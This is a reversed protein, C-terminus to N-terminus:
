KDLQEQVAGELEALQARLPEVSQETLQQERRLELQLQHNDQLPCKNTNLFSYKEHGISTKRQSFVISPLGEEM